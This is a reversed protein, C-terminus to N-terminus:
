QRPSLKEMAASIRDLSEKKGFIEILDFPGPSASRGSLAVRLPWLVDGRGRMEAFAMMKSEVIEKAFDGEEINELIRKSEKLNEFASEANSNKWVLLEPDYAPLEFFFEANQAFDVLTKMREKEVRVARLFRDRDKTWEASVFDELCVALTEDSMSRIYHGNLWALKEPNFIGGSKQVRDFSFEKKMEEVSLIERDEKPHWGLLVLFNVVAPSLYGENRYDIVSKALDRKSLKKKNPGLILPLHAYTLPTFGLAEQIAIQRPTNSIHEEGRVVHTIATEHDDVVNAFNYLPERASKAIIFDGVLGLNFTVKGRILDHFSVERDSVKLRIVSPEKGARLAAEEPSLLRCKGGYKPPIGQSMQAQQEEEIEKQSCFCRYALGKEILASLHEEYRDIRDTQRYFEDWEIGLWRLSEQIDDEFEKKSRGLDTDEIRLVFTGGEHRTFLWNFLATRAGGFNLPGTPSPAFRTRVHKKQGPMMM